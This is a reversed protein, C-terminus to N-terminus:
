FRLKLLICLQETSITAFWAGLRKAANLMEKTEGVDIQFPLTKRLPLIQKSVKEYDLLGAAFSLNLAQFTQNEMDEMRQQLGVSITRNEAIAIFLGGQFNKRSISSATEKHFVMPLVPMTLPISPGRQQFTEEYFRNVFM